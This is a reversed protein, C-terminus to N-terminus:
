RFVDSMDLFHQVPQPFVAKFSFMGVAGSSTLCDVETSTVDVLVADVGLIMCGRNDHFPWLRFVIFVESAELAEGTVISFENFVVNV